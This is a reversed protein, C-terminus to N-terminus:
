PPNRKPRTSALFEVLVGLLTKKTRTHQPGRLGRTDERSHQFTRMRSQLAGVQSERGDTKARTKCLERYLDSAFCVTYPKLSKCPKSRHMTVQVTRTQVQPGPNACKSTATGLQWLQLQAFNWFLLFHGGRARRFSTM